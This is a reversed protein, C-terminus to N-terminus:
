WIICMNKAEKIHKVIRYNGHKSHKEPNDSFIAGFEFRIDPRQQQLTRPDLRDSWAASASRSPGCNRVDSGLSGLFRPIRTRSPHQNHNKQSLHGQIHYISKPVFALSILYRSVKNYYDTEHCKSIYQSLMEKQWIKPAVLAPDSMSWQTRPFQLKTCGFNPPGNCHTGEKWSNSACTAFSLFSLVAM